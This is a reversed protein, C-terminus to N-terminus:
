GLKELTTVVELEGRFDTKGGTQVMVLERIAENDQDAIKNKPKVKINIIQIQTCTNTCMLIFGSSTISDELVSPFATTFWQIHTTSGLSWDESLSFQQTM